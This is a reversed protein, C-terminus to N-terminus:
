TPRSISEFTKMLRKLDTTVPVDGDTTFLALKLNRIEAHIGGSTGNAELLAPPLAIGLPSDTFKAAARIAESIAPVCITVDLREQLILELNSPMAAKTGFQLVPLAEYFRVINFVSGLLSAWTQVNEHTLPPLLEERIFIVNAGAEVMAAAIKTITAAAIELAAESPKSGCQLEGTDLQTLRAALTFPGTVGALLLPEDRVLTNLRRIVEVAIKVRPATAANEPSRLGSPLKDKHAGEPWVLTRTQNASDWEPLVGLAHLELYPDFYCSVGDVRLHARIQRIANSIKTPNDLFARLSLNEIKAGLAFVIPLILPRSLPIGQLLGKMMQRPTMRETM